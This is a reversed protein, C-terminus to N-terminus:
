ITDYLGPNLAYEIYVEASIERPDLSPDAQPNPNGYKDVQYQREDEVIKDELTLKVLSENLRIIWHCETFPVHLENLLVGKLGYHTVNNFFGTYDAEYINPEM